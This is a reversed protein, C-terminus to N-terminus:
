KAKGQPGRTTETRRKQETRQWELWHEDLERIVTELVAIMGRNLGHRYGYEWVKSNPIPGIAHGFHRESSLEWFARLYFDDGRVNAPRNM